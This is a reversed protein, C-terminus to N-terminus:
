TRFSLEIRDDRYVHASELITQLLAKARRVDLWQFDELSSGVRAPLSEVAEQRQHQESLWETPEAQREELRSSEDRRAENAKRFEEENLVDRKLLELNKAFDAEPEALRRETQRLEAERRKVEQRESADLLERVKSARGGLTKSDRPARLLM